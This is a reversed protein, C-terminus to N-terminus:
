AHDTPLPQFSVEAFIIVFQPYPLTGAAMRKQCRLLRCHHVLQHEVYTDVTASISPTQSNDINVTNM